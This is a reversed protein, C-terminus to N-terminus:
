VLNPGLLEGLKCPQSALRGLRIQLDPVNRYALVTLACRVMESVNPIGHMM